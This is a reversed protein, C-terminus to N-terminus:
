PTSSHLRRALGIQWTPSAKPGPSKQLILSLFNAQLISGDGCQISGEIMAKIGALGFPALCTLALPQQPHCDALVFSNKAIYLHVVLRRSADPTCPPAGCPWAFFQRDIELSSQAPRAVAQFTCTPSATRRAPALSVRLLVCRANLPGHATRKQRDPQGNISRRVGMKGIQVLCQHHPRCPYQDGGASAM